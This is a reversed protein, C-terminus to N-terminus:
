SLAMFTKTILRPQGFFRVSVSTKIPEKQWEPWVNVDLILSASIIKTLVQANILAARSSANLVILSAILQKKFFVLEAGRSLDVSYITALGIAVLLLVAGFLKWDFNVPSLKRLTIM